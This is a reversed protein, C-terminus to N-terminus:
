DPPAWVHFLLMFKFAIMIDIILSFNICYIKEDMYCVAVQKTMNATSSRCHFLSELKCPFSLLHCPLLTSLATPFDSSVRLAVIKLACNSQLAIECAQEQM